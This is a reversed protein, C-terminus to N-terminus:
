DHCQDEVEKGKRENVSKDSVTIRHRNEAAHSRDIEQMQPKSRSRIKGQRQTSDRCSDAQSTGNDALLVEQRKQDSRRKVTCKMPLAQHLSSCPLRQGDNNIAKQCRSRWDQQIDNELALVVSVIFRGKKAIEPMGHSSVWGGM